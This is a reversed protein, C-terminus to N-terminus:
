ISGNIQWDDETTCRLITHVNLHEYTAPNDNRFVNDNNPIPNMRLNFLYPEYFQIPNM